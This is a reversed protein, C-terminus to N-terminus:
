PDLSLNGKRLKGRWYWFEEPCRHKRWSDLVTKLSNGPLVEPSGTLLAAASFPESPCLSHKNKWGRLLAPKPQDLHRSMYARQPPFVNRASFGGECGGKWVGVEGVCGSHHWASHWSGEPTQILLVAFSTLVSNSIAPSCVPSTCHLTSACVWQYGLIHSEDDDASLPLHSKSQKLQPLTLHLCCAQLVRFSSISKGRNM